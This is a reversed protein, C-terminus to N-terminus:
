SGNFNIKCSKVRIRFELIKLNLTVNDIMALNLDLWIKQDQKLQLKTYTMLNMAFWIQNTESNIFKSMLRM